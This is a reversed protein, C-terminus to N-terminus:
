LYGVKKLLRELMVAAQARTANGRPQFTTPTVGQIIGEKIMRAASEPSQILKADKFVQLYSSPTFNLATNYGAYNMARSMMIAMQERTIPANPKFSGDTNGTVIGAQAAAGIFASMPSNAVDYFREATKLDGQLGLARAVFGAFEARTINKNPEFANGQRAEIIFKSALLNIPEKAWHNGVDTFYKYSALGIVTFNGKVKAHFVKRISLTEIVTPVFTLKGAADDMRVLGSRIDQLATSTRILYEGNLVVEIEKSGSTGAAVYFDFPDTIKQTSGGNLSKTLALAANDALKEVTINLSVSSTSSNLSRAIGAFNVQKLPLLYVADGARVAISASRDRNYAYELTELPISVSASSLGIAADIVVTHITENRSVIYEFAKKLKDGNVIYQKILQGNRTQVNSVTVSQVGVALMEKGFEGAEMRTLDGPLNPDSTTTGISTNTNTVMINNFYLLREGSTDKLPTAGPIYSLTVKQGIAVPSSLKITMTSGTISAQSISRIVGDVMVQFQSTVLSAQSVMSRNFVIQITDGQIVASKIDNGLSTGSVTVPQLNIYDASNGNLDTLRSTGPVYSITVKADKQLPSALTLIVKNEKIEVVTVYNPKGDVLVSFQSKLPINSTSLLENYILTVKSDAGEANQFVPPKSDLYNRVLFDTFAAINLGRNDQVPYAGPTYSVKIIQGDGVVSDLTLMLTNGSQSIGTVKINSDDAKVIFQDYAYVSPSKLSQGFNLRLTKGSVDGDKPKPLVSDIGNVVERGTFAAAQNRYLDRIAYSGGNYSIKVNQGVAVGTELVIYVSDGSTYVYSIRRTEDNVTVSFASTSSWSDTYLLKNYTLRITTNSYMESSQLVPPQKDTVPTQVTQFTWGSTLGAYQNNYNQADYFANSGITVYYTSDYDFTYGSALRIRGERGNATVTVPVEQSSGSKRVSVEGSGRFVERNFTIYLDSNIAVGTSQHSPYLSTVTLASSSDIGTTFRWGASSTIGQVPNGQPDKFADNAVTVYYGTNSTMYGSLNITIRSTGSGTVFSTDNASIRKKLDGSTSWLEIQGNSATVPFGYDITFKTTASVNVDNNRPYTSLISTKPQTKFSWESPSNIGEFPLGTKTTFANPDIKVWYTTDSALTQNLSIVVECGNVSVQNGAAPITEVIANDSQKIVQISGTGAAMDENFKMKLKLQVPNIGTANSAPEYSQVAKKVTSFPYAFEESPTNQGDATQFAEASMKLAYNHGYQLRKQNDFRVEFHTQQAPDEQVPLSDMSGKPDTLDQLYVRTIGGSLVVLKMPQNFDLNFIPTLGVGETSCANPAVSIKPTLDQTSAAASAGLGGYIVEITLIFALLLSLRKRMRRM